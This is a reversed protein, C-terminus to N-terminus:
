VEPADFAQRERALYRQGTSVIKGPSDSLRVVPQGNCSVIRSGTLRVRVKSM